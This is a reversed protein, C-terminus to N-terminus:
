IEVTVEVCVTVTRCGDPLRREARLFRAVEALDSRDGLRIGLAVQEHELGLREADARRRVDGIGLLL